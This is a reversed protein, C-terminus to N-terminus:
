ARAARPRDARPQRAPALRAEKLRVGEEDSVAPSCSRTRRRDRARDRLLRRVRRVAGGVAAEVIEQEDTMGALRSGLAATLELACTRKRLQSMREAAAASGGTAARSLLQLKLDASRLDFTDGDAYVEILWVGDPDSTAVGLVGSSAWNRSCSASPPIRTATMASSWSRAQGPTWWGSRPRSSPWSTPGGGGPGAPDRAPTRRPRRRHLDLPDDALRAGRLLGDLRRREADRGSSRRRGRAPRAHERSALEGDLLELM